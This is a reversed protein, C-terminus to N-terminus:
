AVDQKTLALSVAMCECICLVLRTNHNYARIAVLKLPTWRPPIACPARTNKIVRKDRYDCWEQRYVLVEEVSDEFVERFVESANALVYHGYRKEETIM